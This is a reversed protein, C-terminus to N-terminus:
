ETKSELADLLGLTAKAKAKLKRNRKKTKVYQPKQYTEQCAKIVCCVHPDDKPIKNLLKAASKDDGSALLAQYM